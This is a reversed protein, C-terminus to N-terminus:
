RLLGNAIETAKCNDIDAYRMNLLKLIPCVMKRDKKFGSTAIIKKIEQELLLESM